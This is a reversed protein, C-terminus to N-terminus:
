HDDHSAQLRKKCHSHVSTILIHTLSPKKGCIYHGISPYDSSPSSLHHGSPSDSPFCQSISTSLLLFSREVEGEGDRESESWINGELSHLRKSARARCWQREFGSVRELTEGRGTGQRIAKEMLDSCCLMGVNWVQKLRKLILQGRLGLFM